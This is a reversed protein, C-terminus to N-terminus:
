GLQCRNIDNQIDLSIKNLDRICDFLASLPTLNTDKEIKELIKELNEPCFIQGKFMNKPSKLHPTFNAFTQVPKFLLPQTEEILSTYNEEHVRSSIKQLDDRNLSESFTINESWEDHQVLPIDDLTIAM